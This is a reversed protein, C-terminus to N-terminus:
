TTLIKGTSAYEKTSILLPSVLLDNMFAITVPLVQTPGMDNSHRVNEMSYGLDKQWTGTVGPSYAAVFLPGLYPILTAPDKGLADATADDLTDLNWGDPTLHMVPHIVDAPHDSLSDHDKQIFELISDKHNEFLDWKPIRKHGKLRIGSAISGNFLTKWDQQTDYYDLEEAGHMKSPAAFHLLAQLEMGKIPPGVVLISGSDMVTTQMDRTAIDLYTQESRCWFGPQLPVDGAYLQTITTSPLTRQAEHRFGGENRESAM